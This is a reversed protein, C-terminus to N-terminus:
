VYFCRGATGKVKFSTPGDSLSTEQQQLHLSSPSQNTKVPWTVSKKSSQEDVKAQHFRQADIINSFNNSLQFKKHDLDEVQSKFPYFDGFKLYFAENNGHQIKIESPLFGCENKEM